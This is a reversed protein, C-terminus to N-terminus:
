QTINRTNVLYKVLVKPLSISRECVDDSQDPGNDLTLKISGTYESLGRQAQPDRAQFTLYRRAVSTYAFFSL